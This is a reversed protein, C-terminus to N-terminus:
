VETIVNETSTSLYRLSAEEGEGIEGLGVDHM